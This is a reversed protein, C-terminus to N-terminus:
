CRVNREEIDNVPPGRNDADVNRHSDVIRFFRRWGTWKEQGKGMFVGGYIRMHKEPRNNEQFRLVRTWKL